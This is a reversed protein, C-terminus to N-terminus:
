EGASPSEAAEINVASEALETLGQDASKEEQLTQELLEAVEDLGLTEALCRATGYGAIEYHEIRQTAAIIGADRVAPEAEEAILDRGEEILGQMAKCLHGALSINLLQAMRELRKIQGHTEDLHAILDTKLEENTAVEAMGPLAKVLQSEASYLDKLEHFLLDTLSKLKM